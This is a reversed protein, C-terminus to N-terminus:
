TGTVGPKLLQADSHRNVDQELQGLSPQSNRLTLAHATVFLSSLMMALIAFFPHLLGMLAVGVGILNYFVAWFFNGLITRRIKKGFTLMESVSELNPHFLVFDANNRISLTGTYVGLGLDAKNIAMLDNTGDGVFLVEGSKSRYQDVLKAKDEPSCGKHYRVKDIIGPPLATNPPAPDGTIVVVDLGNEEKLRQIAKELHARPPQYVNLRIMLNGDMFFGFEGDSLPGKGRPHSNNVLLLEHECLEPNDASNGPECWVARVGKGPIIEIQEVPVPELDNQALYRRIARAFPHTQGMEMGGALSLLRNTTWAPDDEVKSIEGLAVGETLTGTKDFMVLKMKSLQELARSGGMAVIGTRHLRQHAVWLASPTSIAFACPCGILLVALFVELAKATTDTVIYYLLGGFAALVVFYLLMSAGRSAAREYYGPRSRMARAKKLYDALTSEQFTTEVRLLLGGDLSVSGAAIKHGPKKHVPEPEGSLHSEDVLGEGDEVIADVLVPQGTETRCRDYKELNHVPVRMASLKGDSGELVKLIEPISEPEWIKSYDSLGKKIRTDVLLSGVYFTLIMASTEFYTNGSGNPIIQDMGLAAVLASGSITNWASLVFAAGSGTFILSALSLKRDRIERTLNDLFPGALLLMVGTALVLSLYRLFGPAQEAEFHLTLSIFILFISAILALAFRLYLLNLPSLRDSASPVDDSGQSTDQQDMEWVM